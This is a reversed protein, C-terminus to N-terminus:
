AVVTFPTNAIVMKRGVVEPARNFWSNWFDESIVV